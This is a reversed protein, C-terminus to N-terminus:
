QQAPRAQALPQVRLACMPTRAPTTITAVKVAVARQTQVLPAVRQVLIVLTERVNVRDKRASTLTLLLTATMALPAEAAPRQSALIAARHVPIALSAPRSARLRM